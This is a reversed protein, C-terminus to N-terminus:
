GALLLLAQFVKLWVKDYVICGFCLNFIVFFESQIRLCSYHEIDCAALLNDYICPVASFHLFTHERHHVVIKWQLPIAEMCQEAFVSLSPLSCPLRRRDKRFLYSLVQGCIWFTEKDTIVLVAPIVITYEVEFTAAVCFNDVQVFLRLRVDVIRDRLLREEQSRLVQCLRFSQNRLYSRLLSYEHIKDLRDCQFYREGLKKQVLLSSRLRGTLLHMRRVEM